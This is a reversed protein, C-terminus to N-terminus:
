VQVYVFSIKKTKTAFFIETLTMRYILPYKTVSKVFKKIDNHHIPAESTTLKRVSPPMYIDNIMNKVKDKLFSNHFTYVLYMNFKLINCPFFSVCCPRLCPYTYPKEILNLGILKKKIDLPAELLRIPLMKNNVPIMMGKFDEM